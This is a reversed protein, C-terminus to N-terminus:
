QTISVLREYLKQPDESAFAGSPRVSYDLLGALRKPDSIRYTLQGQITVAQFDSTVENFVFPVDVSSIPVSVITSTPAYYFFSLGAGQRVIKGDRYHLVYNTPPAKMFAIGFM